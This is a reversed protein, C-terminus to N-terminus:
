ASAESELINAVILIILLVVFLIFSVEIASARGQLIRPVANISERYRSTLVPGKFFNTRFIIQCSQM